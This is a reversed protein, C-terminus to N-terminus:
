RRRPRFRQVARALARFNTASNPMPGYRLAVYLRTVADIGSSLDPRASRARRALAIPGESVGRAIGIRELKRCYREYHQLLPNTAHRRRLQLMAYIFVLQVLIAVMAPVASKDNM